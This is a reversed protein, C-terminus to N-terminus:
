ATGRGIRHNRGCSRRRVETDRAISHQTGKQRGKRHPLEMERVMVAADHYAEKQVRNMIIDRAEESTMSSIRELEGQQKDHLAQAESELRAVNKQKDDLARERSEIAETKKDLADERQVLRRDTRQLENRRDRIEKDLEARERLMTEKAALM